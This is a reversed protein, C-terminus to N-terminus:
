GHSEANAGDVREKRDHVKLRLGGQPKITVFGVVKIKRGPDAIEFRFRTVLAALLCKVELRAFSQGICSRPGHLFALFAYPSEAGGAAAHPGELWRDPNFEAADAGWLARSRNIAWPSVTAVTGKPVRVDGVTTDVVAHRATSPAPPYLRLTENCVATLFPMNEPEFTSAGVESTPLHALKANCEAHLRDQVRPHQALLMLAWTLASAVTDHGAALFTLMQSVLYDDSFDGARMISAIIDNVDHADSKEERLLAKKEQMLKRIEDHLQLQAEITRAFGTGKLRRLLWRPFLMSVLLFFAPANTVTQYLKALRSNENELTDFDMGVGAAGIIDLAARSVPGTVDLVGDSSDRVQHAMVAALALGKSYFLPALERIHRGSFAPAVVRRMAKHKAGEVNVLGEGVIGALAKRIFPPKEWDYNHSNLMDMLTDPRTVIIECSLYLPLWVVLIGDNPMSNVMDEMITTPPQGGNFNLHCLLFKEGPPSPLRRLPSKFFPITIRTAIYVWVAVHTAVYLPHSSQFSVHGLFHRVALYTPQALVISLHTIVGRWYHM